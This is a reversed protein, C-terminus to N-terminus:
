ADKIYVPQYAKIQYKQKGPKYYWMEINIPYVTLMVSIDKKLHRISIHKLM